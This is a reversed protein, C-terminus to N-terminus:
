NALLFCLVLASVMLKMEKKLKLITKSKSNKLFYIILYYNKINKLYNISTM